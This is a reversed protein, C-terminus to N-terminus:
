HCSFRAGKGQTLVLDLAKFYKKNKSSFFFYKANKKKNELQFKIFNQPDFFM